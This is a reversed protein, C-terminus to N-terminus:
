AAKRKNLTGFFRRADAATATDANAAGMRRMTARQGASALVLKQGSFVLGLLKSAHGKGRVTAPDIKARKLHWLQKDTAPQSEWPLAPEYEATAFSDHALAFEEASIFKGKKKSQESLKERLKEERQHSASEALDQLDLEKAEGGGKADQSIKTITEAEDESQAILHAPRSISHKAHNWLFDLILLNEKLPAIRTGRGIQQAYLPRSRTPRLPVVCDIGVGTPGSDVDYGETLLMANSLLDFEGAAFRELREKRDPSTGDVHLAKLGAAECAAVFKVSTQILPLFVLTRRFSAHTAIAKAIDGLWPEIAHGLDADNFDGATSRVQSLDIALPVAKVSIPSLYGQRVLEFLPVEFAVREYFEGLNRKDGRDPTATVGLVHATFHSIVARWSASISHHAEDCVVLGFHAPPFRKLREERMLTQVSAVVVPAALSAYDEAKEKAAVIGTAAYIKAIAQEILEERHALILTRQGTAKLRRAALHAFCITKGAGTPLVGLVRQCETFARETDEVATLQYPRLTM